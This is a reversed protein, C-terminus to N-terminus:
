DNGFDLYDEIFKLGDTGDYAESNDSIAWSEDSERDFEIFPDINSGDEYMDESMGYGDLSAYCAGTTIDNPYYLDCDLTNTFDADEFWEPSAMLDSNLSFRERIAATYDDNILDFIPDTKTRFFTTAFKQELNLYQNRKFFQHTVPEFYIGAPRVDTPLIGNYRRFWDPDRDEFWYATFNYPALLDESALNYHDHNFNWHPM